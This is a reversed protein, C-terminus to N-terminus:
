AAKSKAPLKSIRSQLRQRRKLNESAVEYIAEAIEINDHEHLFVKSVMNPHCGTLQCVQKNFDRPLNPLLKEREQKTIIMNTFQLTLKIFNHYWSIM